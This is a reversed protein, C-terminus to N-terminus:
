ESQLSAQEAWKVDHAASFAIHKQKKRASFM